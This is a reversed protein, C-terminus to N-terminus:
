KNTPSSVPLASVRISSVQEVVGQGLVVGGRTTNPCPTTADSGNVVGARLLAVVDDLEQMTFFGLGGSSRDKKWITPRVIMEVCSRCGRRPLGLHDEGATCCDVGVQEDLANRKKPRNLEVLAVGDKDVTVRLFKLLSYDVM